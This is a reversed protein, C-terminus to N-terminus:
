DVNRRHRVPYRSRARASRSCWTLNEMDPGSASSRGPPLTWRTIINRPIKHALGIRLIGAPQFLRPLRTLVTKTLNLVASVWTGRDDGKYQVALPVTRSMNTPLKRRGSRCKGVKRRRDRSDILILKPSRSLCVLCINNSKIEDWSLQREKTM